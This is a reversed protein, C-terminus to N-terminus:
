PLEYGLCALLLSLSLSGALARSELRPIHLLIGRFVLFVAARMAHLPASM